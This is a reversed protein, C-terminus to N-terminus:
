LVSPLRTYCCGMYLVDRGFVFTHLAKVVYSSDCYFFYCCLGFLLLYIFNFFFYLRTSRSKFLSCIVCLKIKWYICYPGLSLLVSRKFNWFFIRKSIFHVADFRIVTGIEFTWLCCLVYLYLGYPAYVIIIKTKKTASSTPSQPHIWCEMKVNPATVDRNRKVYQTYQIPNHPLM